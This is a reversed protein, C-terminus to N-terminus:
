VTFKNVSVYIAEIARIADQKIKSLNWFNILNSSAVNLQVLINKLASGPYNHYFTLLSWNYEFVIRTVSFLTLIKVDDRILGCM